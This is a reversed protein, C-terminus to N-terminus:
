QQLRQLSQVIVKTANFLDDSNFIRDGAANPLGQWGMYEHLLWLDEPTLKDDKHFAIMAGLLYPFRYGFAYDYLEEDAEENIIRIEEIKDCIDASLVKIQQKTLKNYDVASMLTLTLPTLALRNERSLKLYDNYSVIHVFGDVNPYKTYELECYLNLLESVGSSRRMIEQYCNARMVFLQGFYINDSAFLMLNYPYVFCTLALNRTSMVDLIEQPVEAFETQFGTGLYHELWYDFSFGDGYLNGDNITTEPWPIYDLQNTFNDFLPSNPDVNGTKGTTGSPTPDDKSDGCGVLTLM